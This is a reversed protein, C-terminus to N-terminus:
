LNVEGEVLHTKNKNKWTLEVKYIGEVLDSKRIIVPSKKFKNLSFRRDDEANNARYFYIEVENAGLISEPCSMMFDGNSTVDFNVQEIFIEGNVKADIKDQYNVEQHYYDEAYLDTKTQHAMVVMTLIFGMFLALFITIGTGWNFKM